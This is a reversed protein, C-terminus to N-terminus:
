PSESPKGPIKRTGFTGPRKNYTCGRVRLECPGHIRWLKQKLRWSALKDTAAGKIEEYWEGTKTSVYFDPTYWIPVKPDGSLNIREPQSDYNLIQGAIRLLRLEDCRIAEAKSPHSHESQCITRKAGYKHKGM